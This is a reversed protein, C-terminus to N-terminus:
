YLFVLGYLLTWFLTFSLGIQQISGTLYKFWSQRTYEFLKFNMKWAWIMLSVFLHLLIFCVALPYGLSMLPTSCPTFFACYSVAFYLSIICYVFMGIGEWGTLGAIGAICGSAIGMVSRIREIRQLNFSLIMPDFVEKSHTDDDITPSTAEAGMGAMPDNMM